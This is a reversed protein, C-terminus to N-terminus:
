RRWEFIEPSEILSEPGDLGNYKGMTEVGEEARGVRIPSVDAVAAACRCRRRCSRRYCPLLPLFIRRDVGSTKKERLGKFIMSRRRCVANVEFTYQHDHILFGNGILQPSCEEDEMARPIEEKAM